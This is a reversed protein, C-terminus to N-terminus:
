ARAGRLLEGRGSTTAECPSVQVPSSVSVSVVAGGSPRSEGTVIRENSGGQAVRGAATQPGEPPGMRRAYTPAPADDSTETEDTVQATVEPEFSPNNPLRDVTAQAVTDGAPVAAAQRMVNDMASGGPDTPSAVDAAGTGSGMRRAYTPVLENDWTKTEETVQATVDPEFSPNNPAGHAARQAATDRAAARANDSTGEPDTKLVKCLGVWNRHFTTRSEVHSRNVRRAAEDTLISAGELKRQLSPADAETWIRQEDAELESVEHELTSLLMKAATEADPPINEDLSDRRLEAPRNALAAWARKEEATVGPACCLHRVYLHYAMVNRSINEPIPAM